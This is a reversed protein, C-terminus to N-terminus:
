SGYEEPRGWIDKLADGFERRVDQLLIRAWPALMDDSKVTTMVNSHLEKTEADMGMALCPKILKLSLEAKIPHNQLGRIDEIAKVTYERILEVHKPDNPVGWPDPMVEEYRIFIGDSKPFIVPANNVFESYSMTEGTMLNTMPISDKNSADIVIQVGVNVADVKLGQDEMYLKLDLYQQLNKKIHNERDKVSLLFIKRRIMEIHRFTNYEKINRLEVDIDDIASGLVESTGDYYDLILRYLDAYPKHMRVYKYRGQSLVEYYHRFIFTRGCLSLDAYYKPDTVIDPDLSTYDYEGDMLQHFVTAKICEMQEKHNAVRVKMKSYFQTILKYCKEKHGFRRLIMVNTNFFDIDSSIDGPQHIAKYEEFAEMVAKESSDYDLMVRIMNMAIGERTVSCSKMIYKWANSIDTDAEMKRNHIMEYRACDNLIAAKNEEPLTSIELKSKAKVAYEYAQNFDGSQEEIYALTILVEPSVSLSDNEDVGALNLAIRATTINGMMALCQAKKTLVENWEEPYFDSKDLQRLEEYATEVDNKILALRCRLFSLEIKEDNDLFFPHSYFWRSFRGGLSLNEDLRERALVRECHVTEGKWLEEALRRLFMHHYISKNNGTVLLMPKMDHYVMLVTLFCMIVTLWWFITIHFHVNDVAVLVLGLFVLSLIISTSVNRKHMVRQMLADRKNYFLIFGVVYIAAIIVVPLALSRNNMITNLIDVMIDM